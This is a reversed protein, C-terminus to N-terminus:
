QPSKHLNGTEGQKRRIALYTKETRFRPNEGLEQIGQVIEQPFIFQDRYAQQDQKHYPRDHMQKGGRILVSKGHGIKKPRSIQTSGITTPRIVPLHIVMSLPHAFLCRPLTSFQWNCCVQPNFIDMPPLRFIRHRKCRNIQPIIPALPM